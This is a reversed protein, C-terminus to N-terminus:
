KQLRFVHYDKSEASAIHLTFTSRDYVCTYATYWDYDVRDPQTLDYAKLEDSLLTATSLFDDTWPIDVSFESGLFLQDDSAENWGDYFFPNAHPQTYHSYWYAFRDYSYANSYLVLEMERKMDDVTAIEDYHRWLIESREIGSAGQPMYYGKGNSLYEKLSNDEDWFISGGMSEYNRSATAWNYFNTMIPDGDTFVADGNFFELITVKGTADSILFHSDYGYQAVKTSASVKYRTLLQKVDDISACNDLIYRPLLTSPIVPLSSADEVYGYYAPVEYSPGVIAEGPVVNHQLMLGAENLGDSINFFKQPDGNLTYQSLEAADGFGTLCGINKYKASSGYNSVVVIIDNNFLWDLNRGLLDGKAVGSCRGSVSTLGPTQRYADLVDSTYTINASYLKESTNVPTLGGYLPSPLDEKESCACFAFLPILLLIIRKM